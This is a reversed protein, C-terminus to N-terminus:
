RSKGFVMEKRLRFKLWIDREQEVETYFSCLEIKEQRKRGFNRKTEWKKEEM